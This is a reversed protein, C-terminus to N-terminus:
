VFSNQAFKEANERKKETFQWCGLFDQGREEVIYSKAVQVTRRYLYSYYQAAMTLVASM